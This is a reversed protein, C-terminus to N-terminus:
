GVETNAKQSNPYQVLGLSIGFPPQGQLGLKLSGIVPSHVCSTHEIWGGTAPAQQAGGKIVGVGVGGGVM